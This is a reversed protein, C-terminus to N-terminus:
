SSKTKLIASNGLFKCYDDVLEPADLVKEPVNPIHRTSAAKPASPKGASYLVKLNNVYGPFTALSLKHQHVQESKRICQM